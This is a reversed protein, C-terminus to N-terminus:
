YPQSGLWGYEPTYVTQFELYSNFVCGHLLSIKVSGILYFDRLGCALANLSLLHRLAHPNM